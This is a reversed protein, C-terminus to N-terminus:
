DDSDEDDEEDDEQRVITAQDFFLEPPGIQVQTFRGLITATGDPVALIPGNDGTFESLARAAAPLPLSRFGASIGQFTDEDTRLEFCAFIRPHNTQPPNGEGRVCLTIQGELDGRVTGRVVAAPTPCSTSVLPCPGFAVSDVTHFFEINRVKFNGNDDDDDAWAPTALPVLLISVLSLFRFRPM